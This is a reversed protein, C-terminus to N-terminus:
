RDPDLQLEDPSPEFFRDVDAETLHALHTPNWHPSHDKDVILARIGEVFDPAELFATSIRYEIALCRELSPLTRANRLAALTVALATPSQESIVRAAAAADGGSSALCEIISGVDDAPYCADIWNRAAALEGAPPESAVEAIAADPNVEALLARLHPLRDAAVFRDALGAAITDAPGLRAATLAMHTGLEGPARSLLWTAGVDPFFGIRVEPMSAITRETVVRHSAHGTLGIGGGMVIRDMFGVIPKPYRAIRANLRYESRWFDRPYDNGAVIADHLARIDGGACFARDGAGELLVTQVTRESEFRDLAAGIQVLMDLDLANLAGPRDLTVIGLRGNIATRITPTPLSDM